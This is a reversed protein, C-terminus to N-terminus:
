IKFYQKTTTEHIESIYNFVKGTENLKGSSKDIFQRRVRFLIEKIDFMSLVKLQAPTYMYYIKDNIKIFYKLTLVINRELIIDVTNGTIEGIGDDIFIFNNNELELDKSDILMFGGFERMHYTVNGSKNRYNFGIQEQVPKDSKNWKRDLVSYKYPNGKNYFIIKNEVFGNLTLKVTNLGWSETNRWRGDKNPKPLSNRIKVSSIDYFISDELHLPAQNFFDADSDNVSKNDNLHKIIIPDLTKKLWKSDDDSLGEFSTVLCDRKIGSVGHVTFKRTNSRIKSVSSNLKTKNDPNVYGKQGTYPNINGRTSFNDRNTSNPASRYHGKVVTGDSRTYSKVYVDSSSKSQTFSSLSILFFLVLLFIKKMVLM